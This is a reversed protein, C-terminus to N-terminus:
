RGLMFKSILAEISITSQTFKIMEGDELMDDEAGPTIDLYKGGLVGNSIVAISSDKPVKIDSSINMKVIAFYTDKDLELDSVSGIVIGAIKVDGGRLIGSVNQFRASVNYGVEDDQHSNTNYLYLAFACTVSIVIAGIITEIVNNKM